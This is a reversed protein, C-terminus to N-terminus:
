VNKSNISCRQLLDINIFGDTELLNTWGSVNRYSAGLINCIEEVTVGRHKRIISLIETLIGIDEASHYKQYQTKIRSADTKTATGTTANLLLSETLDSLSTVPEAIKRRILDNCGESRIDDVRGPLAYVDRDYSFALRCTMMGGGKIKSEVLITARSLGAIIRNRRLFHIALPSTGPPYDTILACGPTHAIKEAISKHRYPYISEPGTAMVAITPLGYDLATKHAEIDTGLALGSIISPRESTKSLERVIKGCWEKGYLSIDRTGVVAIPNPSWLDSFPTDSRIYLGIPADPCERLLSPYCEETIGCFQIGKRSLDKLEKAADEMAALCIKGKFKSYPGMLIHLSEDDLMFIEKASGLHSIMALGVKPEFGFIRNLACLCAKETFNEMGLLLIFDAETNNRSASELIQLSINKEKKHKTDKKTKRDSSLFPTEM